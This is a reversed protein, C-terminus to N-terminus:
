DLDRVLSELIHDLCHGNVNVRHSVYRDYPLFYLRMQTWEQELQAIRQQTNPGEREMLFIIVQIAM